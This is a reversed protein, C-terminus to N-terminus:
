WFRIDGSLTITFPREEVGRTHNHLWYLAGAPLNDYDLFYDTAIRRGLSRWGDLDHYFLEYDDGPYIGNGDSRPLLVVRSVAVPRGFDVTAYIKENFVSSQNSLPDGDYLNKFQENIQGRIIKGEKDFFAIEACATEQPLYVLWYRYPRTTDLQGELYSKRMTMGSLLPHTLQMPLANSAYVAAPRVIKEYQFVDQTLPYKREIRAKLRRTTDPVLYNVAGDLQLIFPYHMARPKYSGYYGPLYLINKGINSFRTAEASFEGIVVPTWTLDCFTYLYAYRPTRRPLTVPKIHIDATHLYEETVDKQFPERFLPPVYENKPLVAHPQISFTKRYVKAARRELSNAVYPEKFEPSRTMHWYHYGNRNAYHPFFDISAPLATVRSQLATMAAANRCEYQFSHRLVEKILPHYISFQDGDVPLYNEVNWLTYKSNDVFLAEAYKDPDIQLSDIWCDVRENEFRYPLVYELFLDFPLNQAWPYKNRKEFSRDIHHILFDGKIHRVDELKRVGYSMDDLYCIAIDLVKKLFYSATSDNDIKARLWEVKKGAVTYHGPMNEILFRAARFKLSDAPSQSYHALVKELEPRNDGAMRLATELKDNGPSCAAIVLLGILFSLTNKM